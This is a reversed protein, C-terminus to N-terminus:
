RRIRRGDGGGTVRRTHYRCVVNCIEVHGHRWPVRGGQRVCSCSWCGMAESKGLVAKGAPDAGPVTVTLAASPHHILKKDHEGAGCLAELGLQNIFWVQPEGTTVSDCFLPPQFPGRLIVWDGQGLLTVWLLSCLV